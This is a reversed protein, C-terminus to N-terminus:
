GVSFTTGRPIGGTFQNVYNMPLIAKGESNHNLMVFRTVKRSPSIYLTVATLKTKGALEDKQIARNNM